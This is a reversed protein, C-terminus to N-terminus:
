VNVYDDVLAQPGYQKALERCLRKRERTKVLTKLGDCIVNALIDPQPLVRRGVNACPGGFIEWPTMTTTIVSTGNAM